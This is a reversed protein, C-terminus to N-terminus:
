NGTAWGIAFSSVLVVLVILTIVVFSRDRALVFAVASAAVRAVPVLLMLLLGLMVLASGHGEFSRSLVATITHPYHVAPSREVGHRLPPLSRSVSRASAPRALLMVLGITTVALSLLVGTRLVRAVLIELRRESAEGDAADLSRGDSTDRRDDDEALGSNAPKRASV